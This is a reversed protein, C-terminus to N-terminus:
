TQSAFSVSKRRGDVEGTPDDPFQSFQDKGSLDLWSYRNRKAAAPGYYGADTTPIRRKITEDTEMPHIIRASSPSSQLHQQHHHNAQPHSYVSRPPARFEHSYETEFAATAPERPQEFRSRTRLYDRLMGAKRRQKELRGLEYERM